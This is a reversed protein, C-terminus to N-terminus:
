PAVLQAVGQGAPPQAPTPPAEIVTPEPTPPALPAPTAPEQAQVALTELGAPLNAVDAAIAAAKTLHAAQFQRGANTAALAVVGLIAPWKGPGSVLSGGNELSQVVSTVLGAAAALWGLVSSPGISVQSSTKM